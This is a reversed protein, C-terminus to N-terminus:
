LIRSYNNVSETHWNTASTEDSAFGRCCSHTSCPPQRTPPAPQPKRVPSAPRYFAQVIPGALPSPTLSLISVVRRAQNRRDGSPKAWRSPPCQHRTPSGASRPGPVPTLRLPLAAAVPPAALLATGPERCKTSRRFSFNKLGSRRSGPNSSVTTQPAQAGRLM